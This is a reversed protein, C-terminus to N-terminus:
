ILSLLFYKLNVAETPLTDVSKVYLYDSGLLKETLWPFNNMEINEPLSVQPHMVRSYWEYNRKIFTFNENLIYLYVRTANIFEGIDRLSDIIAQNFDQIGVFRSAIGTIITKFRSIKKLEQEIKKEETINQCIIQYFTDDGIDVFSTQMNVWILHGNKHYLQIELPSLISDREKKRLRNLVDVLYDKHIISLDVFKRGMLEERTYGLTEEM